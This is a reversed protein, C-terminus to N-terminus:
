RFGAELAGTQVRISWFPYQGGRADILELQLKDGGVLGSTRQELNPTEGVRGYAARMFVAGGDTGSGTFEPPQPKRRFLRARGIDPAV